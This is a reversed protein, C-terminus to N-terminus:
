RPSTLPISRCCASRRKRMVVMASRSCAPRRAASTSWLWSSLPSRSSASNRALSPLGLPLSISSGAAGGLLVNLAAGFSLLSVFLSGGYVVPSGASGLGVALVSTALLVAVCCLILVVAM